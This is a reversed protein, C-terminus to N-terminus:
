KAVFIDVLINHQSFAVNTVMFACADHRVGGVWQEYMLQLVYFLEAKKQLQYLDISEKFLKQVILAM